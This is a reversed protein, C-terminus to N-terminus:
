LRKVVIILKVTNSLQEEHKIRLKNQYSTRLNLNIIITTRIKKM